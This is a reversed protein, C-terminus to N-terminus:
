VKGTRALQVVDFATASPGVRPGGIVSIVRLEVETVVLLDILLVADPQSGFTPAAINDVASLTGVPNNTTVNFWQCNLSAAAVNIRTRGTLRYRGPQLTVRGVNGSVDLAINTVGPAKNVVLAFPIANGIILVGSLATVIGSLYDLPFTIADQKAELAEKFAIRARQENNLSM